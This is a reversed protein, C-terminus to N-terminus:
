LQSYIQIAFEIVGVFALGVWVWRELFRMRVEHDEHLQEFENKFQVAENRPFYTEEIRILRANTGDKIEKIDGEKISKVTETLHQVDRYLAILIDHDNLIPREQSSIDM